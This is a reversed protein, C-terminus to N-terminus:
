DYDSDDLNNDSEEESSEVRKKRPRGPGRGSGPKRGRRGPTKPEKAASLKLKPIPGRRKKEPSPTMEHGPPLIVTTASPPAPKEPPPPAKSIKLVIGNSSEEVRTVLPGQPQDDQDDDNPDISLMLQRFQIYQEVLARKGGDDLHQKVDLSGDPEKLKELTLSPSFHVGVKRSVQKEYVKAQENPSYQQIRADTLGYIEKLAQKCLLLLICAHSSIMCEQAIRTDQPLREILSELDDDDDSDSENGLRRQDSHEQGGRRALQERFNHLLGTGSVSLHIDIHHMVFLPEDQVLYPFYVVNDAIYLLEMLPTRNSDDFQKLLSLLFARRTQRTSRLVTYLFGNRAIPQGDTQMRVGRILREEKQLRDERLVTQLKYSLRVGAGAKMQVFGPYKKELEQLLREATTRTHPDDDSGLCSLYPVMQVPHVLGQGLVLQIVYLAQKRVQLHNSIVSALIPKLYLQIVTSAMGSAVDGMEKLNEKKTQKAWERDREIMKQEEEHLYTKINTLVSVKFTATVEPNTLIYNYLNKVDDGLMLDYHRNLMSGLGQLAKLRIAEDTHSNFHIFCDFVAAKESVEPTAPDQLHEFDFHKCILGATFLNRMLIPKLAKDPENKCIELTKVIKRFCDRVLKHNKTVLNVIKGLCSTASPLVASHGRLILKTLGEEVQVLFDESPHDVLPVVLELCSVVSKIIMQEAVTTCMISLYPQFVQYHKTTMAPEIKTFMNLTTLCAILHPRASQQQDGELELVNDVLCDVIQRCAMKTQPLALEHEKSRLLNSLLQEFWELGTDRCAAVVHCINKVKQEIRDTEREKCPVFWMSQFVEGVLKKVAEEDNVRRIIRVCIEPVKEFDPQEVCIDKLIKIVRKRVSVGTDLIRQTLMEYYVDILEPSQLLFKGLLDVAAERVSTASDLLRSHVAFKVNPRRLIDPDAEVVQTLCKMAKTRVATTNEGLVKLIQSLYIDFSRSFPRRSALFRSILEATDYDLTTRIIEITGFEAYDQQITEIVFKKRKEALKQVKMQDKDDKQNEDDDEPESKVEKKRPSEKEKDSAKLRKDEKKAKLDEDQEKCEVKDATSSREKDKMEGSVGGGGAKADAKQAADVKANAVADKYWQALYFRKSFELSHDSEINGDLYHLLAQQLITVEDREEKLKAANNKKKKKSKSQIITDDEENNDDCIQRLIDDIVEQRIKTQVADKRLRAAVVGLYELSSTRMSMDLNKNSFNNVLLQGLLSLMLESAPWEPKNVTSLLDQVFNEFLPRYDMEEHKVGCKKLFVSLFSVATRIAEDYSTMLVVEDLPKYEEKEVCSEKDKDRTSSSGMPKKKEPSDEKEDKKTAEVAPLRVVSHILQLVLATLMQIQEESNLRYNRLSRKSTPLRAISALIDELILQRHPVYRTFIATVLRLANLQLESVGEVFFPSVGLSSAKLVITDTLSQLKLLEALLGVAEHLKNYLQTVNKQSRSKMSSYYRKQKLSATSEEDKKSVRYAPDFAPFITNQVQFKVFTVIREIVDELFVKEPMDAATMIYLATLSSDASRQIKDMMLELAAGEDEDHDGSLCVRCGDLINRELITLLRVLRDAPVQNIARLVKLKASEDTLEKLTKHPILFEEPCTDEEDVAQALDVDEMADFIKEVLRTFRQYTTSEMLEEATMAEPIAERRVKKVKAKKIVIEKPPPTPEKHNKKPSTTSKEKCIPGPMGDAKETKEKKEKGKPGEFDSDDGDENAGADMAVDSDEDKKDDETYKTQNGRRRRKVRETLSSAILSDMTSLEDPRLEPEKRKKIPTGGWAKPDKGRSRFKKKPPVNTKDSHPTNSPTGPVVQIPTALAQTAAPQVNAAMPSASYGQALENIQKDLAIPDTVGNATPPMYNNLISGGSPTQMSNHQQPQMQQAGHMPGMHSGPLNNQGYGGHHNELIGAVSHDKQTPYHGQQGQQNFQNNNFQSGNAGKNNTQGTQQRYYPTQQPTVFQQNNVQAHHPSFANPQGTPPYGFQNSSPGWAGTSAGMSPASRSALLQPQQSYLHQLMHSMGSGPPPQGGDEIEINEINTRSLAEMVQPLLYNATALINRVEDAEHPAVLPRAAPGCAGPLSVPLPLESLLDTLGQVAALTTIPVSPGEGNM